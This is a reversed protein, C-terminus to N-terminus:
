GLRALAEERSAAITFTDVFGCIEFLERVPETLSCLTLRSSTHEAETAPLLARLAASTMYIVSGFDLVLLRAGSQLFGKLRTAFDAANSSDIRGALSVICADGSRSDTVTLRSESM